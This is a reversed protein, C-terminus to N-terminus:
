FPIDDSKASGTTAPPQEEVQADAAPAESAVNSSPVLFVDRVSLRLNAVPKGEKNIYAQASPEGEVFVPVGKKLFPAIGQTRTNDYMTCNIFTSPKYSGDKDKGNSVAIDFALFEGSRGTQWGADKVLRGIFLGKKM